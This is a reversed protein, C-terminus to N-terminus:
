YPHATKQPNKSTGKLSEDFPDYFASSFYGGVDCAVVNSGNPTQVTFSGDCYTQAQIYISNLLFILMLFLIKKM